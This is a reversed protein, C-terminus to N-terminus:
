KSLRWLMIERKVQEPVDKLNMPQWPGAETIGLESAVYVEGRRCYIYCGMGPSYCQWNGWKYSRYRILPEDEM